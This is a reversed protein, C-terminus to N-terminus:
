RRQSISKSFNSGYSVTPLWLLGIPAASSPRFSSTGLMEVPIAGAAESLDLGVRRTDGSTKALAENGSLWTLFPTSACLM